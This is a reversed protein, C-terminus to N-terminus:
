RRAPNGWTSTLDTAVGGGGGGSVTFVTVSSLGNGQDLRTVNCTGAGVLTAKTTPSDVVSVVAPNDSATVMPGIVPISPTTVNSEVDTVTSSQGVVGTVPTGNAM